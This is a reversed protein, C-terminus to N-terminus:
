LAIYEPGLKDKCYVEGYLTPAPIILFKWLHSIVFLSMYHRSLCSFLSYYFSLLVRMMHSQPRDSLYSSTMQSFYAIDKALKATKSQQPLAKVKLVFFSLCSIYEPASKNCLTNQAVQNKGTEYNIYVMDWLVWKFAM